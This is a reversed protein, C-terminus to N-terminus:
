AKHLNEELVTLDKRWMDTIRTNQVVKIEEELNSVKENLERQKDATLKTIKLSTLYEFSGNIKDFKERELMAILEVVTITKIDIELVLGIFRIQNRMMLLTENMKRLINDKRDKYKAYRINFWELIISEITDYRKIMNNKDFLVKNNLNITESLALVKFIEEKTTDRNFTITYRINDEKTENTFDVITLGFNPWDISHKKGLEFIEKILANSKTNKDITSANKFMRNFASSSQKQMFKELEDAHHYLIKLYKLRNEFKSISYNIPLETVVCSRAGAMEILGNYVYRNNGCSVNGRFGAYYTNIMPPQTNSKNKREDIKTLLYKVYAIIDTPSYSPIETSWGTGIGKAGNVLVFPIIPCYYVPEVEQDDEVVNTLLEDDEKPFILRAIPSLKVGVYRPAGHDAGNELRTGGMQDCYVLPINNGSTPYRYALNYISENLSMDGHHYNAKNAVLGSLQFVKMPASALSVTNLMTYIIKRHSPKLGDIVSPISRKCADYSFIMFDTNLFDVCDISTVNDRSLHTDETLTLMWQKRDDARKNNFAKDIVENYNPNDFKISICNKQYDTFMRKVDAETNTALGKIFSVVTKGNKRSQHEESNVYRRYEVENYFCKSASCKSATRKDGTQVSTKLGYDIKIMPSIFENFFGTLRLLSPFKTDFFNIVLGMIASGDSDADKVCVVKGYRLGMTSRYEHGDEIGLAIKLEKLEKNNQYTSETANRTNLVKGQLPYCGYYDHGLIDMGKNCMSKASLGECIFLTCKHGQKEPGAQNADTLRDVFTTKVKTSVKAPPKDVVNTILNILDGKKVLTAIFKDDLTCTSGFKSAKTSLKTKAQGEFLPSEIIAYIFSSCNAKLTALTVNECGKITKLKIVIQSLIYNVHEGQEYTNINNVYSVHVPNKGPILGIKWRQTLLSYVLNFNENAGPVVNVHSKVFLDWSLRPLAIDNISLTIPLHTLDYVRKSFLAKMDQTIGRTGLKEFDPKFSIKVYDPEYCETILYPHVVSLNNEVIQEYKQNNNVVEIRFQKSLCVTLKAGLGNKGGTTKTKNNFNSSSRFKTFIVEPIMYDKGDIQMLELPISKGDNTITIEDNTINVKIFSIGTDRQLNDAANTFIEDFLKLLGNNISVERYKLADNEYVFTLKRDEGIYGLYVDIAEFVHQVESLVTYEQRKSM